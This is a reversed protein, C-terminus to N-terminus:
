PPLMPTSKGTRSSSANRADSSRAGESSGSPSPRQRRCRGGWLVIPMAIAITERISPVEGNSAILASASAPEVM